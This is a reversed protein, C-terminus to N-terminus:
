LLELGWEKIEKEPPPEYEGVKSHSWGTCRKIEVLLEAYKLSAIIPDIVPVGVSEQLEKFLGFLATCGLILVEAGENVAERAINALRKKTEERDKRFEHVGLGVPKISLLKDRLGYNTVNKEVIPIWKRRGVIITFKNGLTAALHLSSECPATVIINSIERAEHLGPDYFCGIVAADYGEREAKKVLRLVEPIVLAEYSYYEVHHPGKGLSVVSVETDPRKYQNIYEKKLTDSISTGVPNIFLIRIVM